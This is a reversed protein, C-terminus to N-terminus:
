DLKAATGAINLTDRHEARDLDNTRHPAADQGSRRAPLIQSLHLLPRLTLALGVAAQDHPPPYEDAGAWNENPRSAGSEPTSKPDNNLGESRPCTSWKPAWLAAAGIPWQETSPRIATKPAAM